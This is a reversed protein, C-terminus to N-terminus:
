RSRAPSCSRSSASSGRGSRAVAHVLPDLQPDREADPVDRLALARVRRRRPRRELRPAHGEEGAGDGLPPVRDRRAVAHAGRERGSGLRVLRGLRGGRLGVERRAPDRRRPVDLRRADLPPHRRDLARRHAAVRARGDRVRVPDHPRRLRPLPAAPARAHVPEPPEPQARRRRGAGVQTAFPSAVFVLLSPSSADRDGGLIPVTWPLVDRTLRGNLALAAVSMGLLVLLWLLLSGEQGSWFAALAYRLPLERSTHDAVYAFRSTARAWRRSCSSRPSWPRPSPAGVLANRASELLRRRGRYAAYAGAVAAYAVLGLAVVLAARGLLPM